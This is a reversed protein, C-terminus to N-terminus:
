LNDLMGRIDPQAWCRCNIPQGPHGDAPGRKWSYRKNAADRAQHETRVRGDRVSRWFYHTIGLSNQRAETVRGNLKNTQDRAILQGRSATVDSREILKKQLSEIREGRELGESLIEEAEVFYKNPLDALRGVNEAIWETKQRNTIGEEKNIATAAVARPLNLSRVGQIMINRFRRANGEEVGEEADTAWARYDPLGLLQSYQVRMRGILEEATVIKKPADFLYIVPAGHWDSRAESNATIKRSSDRLVEASAKELAVSIKTADVQYKRQPAPPTGGSPLRAAGANRRRATSAM